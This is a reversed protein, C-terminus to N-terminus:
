KKKSKLYKTLTMRTIDNIKVMFILCFLLLLCDLIKNVLSLRLSFDLVMMVIAYIIGITCLIKIRNIKKYMKKNEETSNKYENKLARKEEKSLIDYKYKM